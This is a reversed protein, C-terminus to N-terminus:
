SVPPGGARIQARVSSLREAELALMAVVIGIVVAMLWMAALGPLLVVALPAAAMAACREWAVRRVVRYRGLAPTLLSMAIGLGLAARGAGSLHEDPHALTKKGAVAFFIIGLVIPYHGLSFVDRALPGRRRPEAFRLARLAAHAFFDFYSWWLATVGAFAILIALAFTADRPEEAAGVGIAVISEGLAIIVILAYREAFHSPSIRFDNEGGLRLAGGVDIALSLAWLVARADGDLFGGVVAVAPAVLFWPALHLFAAYHAPDHRLGWLYLLVHLLRVVLYPAVFWVAQEDYASPVALAAFFMAAMCVLFVVRVAASDIEIANTMWAFGSWAWWVMGLVLAGRAFGGATPDALILTTVQTFAFVVVLDFFLELYSTHREVEEASAITDLQTSTM